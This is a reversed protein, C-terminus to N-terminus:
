AARDAISHALSQMATKYVSDPLTAIADVAKSQYERTREQAYDISGSSELISVVEQLMSRDRTTLATQLLERQADSSVHRMAHILPLTMSGEALDTGPEKGIKQLDGIYDLVDDRLQFAIGIHVGYIRLAEAHAENGNLIGSGHAAAEFLTATKREILQFYIKESHSDTNGRRDMQQLEGLSLLECGYVIMQSLTDNELGLLMSLAHSYIFDGVLVSSQDGWASNASIQNRRRTAKDAVDDHLISATHILEIIGAMKIHIQSIGGCAGAALLAVLPRMGKGGSGVVHRAIDTALSCDAREIENRILEHMQEMEARVLEQPDPNITKHVKSLRLYPHDLFLLQCNVAQEL